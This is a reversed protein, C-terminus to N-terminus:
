TVVINFKNEDLLKGTERNFIRIRIKYVGNLESNLYNKATKLITQGKKITMRNNVTSSIKGNADVVQRVIKVYLPGNSKNRYRYVYDVSSNPIYEKEEIPYIYIRSPPNIITIPTPTLEIPNIETIKPPTVPQDPAAELLPEKLIVKVQYKQSTINATSGFMVYITKEGVGSSLTFTTTSKLAQWYANKFDPDESLIM